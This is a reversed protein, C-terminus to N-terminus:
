SLAMTRVAMTGFHKNLQRICVDMGSASTPKLRTKAADFWDKALETFTIARNATCNGLRGLKARFDPLRREALQRDATKLSKRFQKGNRKVLAYYTGTNSYRYLCEAVRNFCPQKRSPLNAIVLQAQM